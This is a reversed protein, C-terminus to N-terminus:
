GQNPLWLPHVIAGIIEVAFAEGASDASQRQQEIVKRHESPCSTPSVKAYGARNRKRVNGATRGAWPPSMLSPSYLKVSTAGSVCLIKSSIKDEHQALLISAKKDWM